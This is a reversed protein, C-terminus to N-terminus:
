GGVFPVEGTTRVMGERCHLVRAQFIELLRYDHTALLVATNDQQALDRLLHLVERSTAPDLNGTIEDAILLAPRNLLARAFAVRQREGGSLTHPQLPGASPLGVATLVEKTREERAKRKKWGTARLVFDLNDAVSRDMLLNHDQFVIGLRRRLAPLDRRRLKQLDYGAVTGAGAAPPLDGYLTKLLSSKGCGTKGVLYVFEGPQLDLDVGTLLDRSGQRVTLGRLSVIADAM